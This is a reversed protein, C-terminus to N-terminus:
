NNAWLKYLSFLFTWCEKAHRRSHQCIACLWRCLPLRKHHSVSGQNKGTSTQPQAVSMLATTSTSALMVTGLPMLWCLQSCSTSYLQPLFVARNLVMPSQSLTLSLVMIKFMLRCAKMSNACWSSSNRLVGMSSRSRGCAMVFSKDFAKTLDVYTSYLNVNQKQCKKQLLQRAAFIMGIAHWHDRMEKQIWVSKGPLLGQNLHDTLRNLLLRTLIKGAISLLSIGRHNNCEQRNGKRKYLHIITADKYEQPIKEQQWMLLFVSHLKLGLCEGGDKYIEAPIAFSGPTKGRSLM